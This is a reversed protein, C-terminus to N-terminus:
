GNKSIVKLSNPLLSCLGLKVLQEPAHKLHNHLRKRFRSSSYSSEFQVTVPGLTNSRCWGQRQHVSVCCGPPNFGTWVNGDHKPRPPPNPKLSLSAHLEHQLSVNEELERFADDAQKVDTGVLHSRDIPESLGYEVM